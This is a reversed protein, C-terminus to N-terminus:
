ELVKKAEALVKQANGFEESAKVESDGSVEELKKSLDGIAGVLAVKSVGIM